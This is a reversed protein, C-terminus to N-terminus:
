RFTNNMKPKNNDFIIKKCYVYKQNLTAGIKFM